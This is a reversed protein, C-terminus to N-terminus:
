ILGLSDAADANDDVVLVRRVRGHVQEIPASAEPLDIRKAYPLRLEFETGKGPGDSHARLTGGHLEALSRALSLGVGLGGQVAHQAGDGQAFLEFVEALAKPTMGVGTDR